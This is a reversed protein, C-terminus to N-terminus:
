KSADLIVEGNFNRIIIQETVFNHDQAKVTLNFRMHDSSRREASFHIGSQVQQDRQTSGLSVIEYYDAKLSEGDSSILDISNATMSQLPMDLVIEGNDKFTYSIEGPASHPLIELPNKSYREDRSDPNPLDVFYGLHLHSYSAGSSGVTAIVDDKDVWDGVEVEISHLHLYSSALTDSHKVTISTGAGTSTGNWENTQVVEGPLVPYVLAGTEAPLDIGAHFDYGSPLSRPGYQAYSIDSNNNSNKSIPWQVEKSDDVQEPDDETETGSSNEETCAALFLASSIVTLLIFKNTINSM